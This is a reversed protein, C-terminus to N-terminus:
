SINDSMMSESREGVSQVGCVECDTLIIMLGHWLCALFIKIRRWVQQYHRHGGNFDKTMFCGLLKKMSKGIKALDRLFRSPTAM